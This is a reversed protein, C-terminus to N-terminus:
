FLSTQNSNLIEFSKKNLLIENERKPNLKICNGWKKFLYDITKKELNSERYQVVGGKNTGSQFSFLFKSYRVCGTGNNIHQLTYDYDEKLKLKEDYRISNPKTMTFPSTILINEKIEETAFFPNDTPPAGAYLYKSNLFHPMLSEIADLVYTCQGTRKGTFDNITTKKLDDDIQICIKNKNFCYELAKNRNKALSGGILCNVGKRTYDDFDKQDNVIFLIKNTGATEIVKEINHPRRHSVCTIIYPKEM